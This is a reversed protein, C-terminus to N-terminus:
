HHVWTLIINGVVNVIHKGETQLVQKLREPISSIQGVVDVYWLAIDGQIVSPIEPPDLGLAVLAPRVQIALGRFLKVTETV